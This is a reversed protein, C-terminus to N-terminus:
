RVDREENNGAPVLEGNQHNNDMNEKVVVEEHDHNDNEAGEM